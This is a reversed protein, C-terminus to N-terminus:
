NPTRSSQVRFKQKKEVKSVSLHISLSIENGVSSRDVSGRHGVRVELTMSFCCTVSIAPLQAKFLACKTNDSERATRFSFLKFAIRLYVGVCVYIYIYTCIYMYKSM